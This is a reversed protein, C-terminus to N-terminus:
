WDRWEETIDDDTKLGARQAAILILECLYERQDTEILKHGCSENLANLALVVDKVTKRIEKDSLSKATGIRAVYADVIKACSDIDAQTYYDPAVKMYGAMGDLLSQRISAVPDKAPKAMDLVIYDEFLCFILHGFRLTASRTGANGAGM